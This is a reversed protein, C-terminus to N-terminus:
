VNDDAILAKGPVAAPQNGWRRVPVGNQARTDTLNLM